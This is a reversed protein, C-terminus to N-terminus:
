EALERKIREKLAVEMKNIHQSASNGTAQADHVLQGAAQEAQKISQDLNGISQDTAYASNFTQKAEVVATNVVAGANNLSAQIKQLNDHMGAGLDELLSILPSDVIPVRVTKTSSKSGTNSKGSHNEAKRGKEHKSEHKEHHSSDHHSSDHHLAHESAHGDHKEDISLEVFKQAKGKVYNDYSTPNTNTADQVSSIDEAGIRNATGMESSAQHLAQKATEETQVAIAHSAVNATSVAYKSWEVAQNAQEFAELLAFRAHELAQAATHATVNVTTINAPPMAKVDEVVNMAKM